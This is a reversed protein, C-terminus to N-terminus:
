VLGNRWIYYGVSRVGRLVPTPDIDAPARGDLDLAFESRLRWGGYWATGFPINGANRELSVAFLASDNRCQFLYATPAGLTGTTRM